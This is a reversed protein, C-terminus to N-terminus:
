YEEGCIEEFEAATIWGHDVADRVMDTNWLCRNYYNKVKVFNKSM